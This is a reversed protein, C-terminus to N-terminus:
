KKGKGKGGGWAQLAQEEAQKKSVMPVLKNTELTKQLDENVKTEEPAAEQTSEKPLYRELYAIAMRCYSIETAWAEEEQHDLAEEEAILDQRAKWEAERKERDRIRKQIDQIFKRQKIIRQQDNYEKRNARYETIIDKKKNRLAEIEAKYEEKSAFLNPVEANIQEQAAKREQIGADIDKRKSENGDLITQIEAQRKKNQEILVDRERHQLAFPKSKELEALESVIRKEETLSHHETELRRHLNRIESDIKDYDQVKLKGRIKKQEDIMGYFTSKLARLEDVLARREEALLKKTNRTDQIYNQSSESNMNSKGTERIATIENYTDDIKSRLMTIKQDIASLSNEHQLEDPQPLRVAPLEPLPTDLTILEREPRQLSAQQTEAEGAEIPEDQEDFVGEVVENALEEM